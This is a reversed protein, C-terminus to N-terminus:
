ANIDNFMSWGNTLKKITYAQISLVDFQKITVVNILQEISCGIGFAQGRIAVNKERVEGWIAEGERLGRRDTCDSSEDSRGREM